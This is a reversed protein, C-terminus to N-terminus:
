QGDGKKILDEILRRRYGHRKYYKTPIKEGRNIYGRTTGRGANYAHLTYVMGEGESYLKELHKIMAFINFRPNWLATGIAKIKLGYSEVVDFAADYGVSGLGRTGSKSDKPQYLTPNGLSEVDILACYFLPDKLVEDFEIIMRIWGRVEEISPSYRGNLKSWRFHCARALVEIDTGELERVRGRLNFVTRTYMGAIATTTAVVAASLSTVLIERRTMGVKAV